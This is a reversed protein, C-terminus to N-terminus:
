EGDAGGGDTVVSEVFPLRLLEKVFDTSGANDFIVIAKDGDISASSVPSGFYGCGFGVKVPEGDRYRVRLETNSM